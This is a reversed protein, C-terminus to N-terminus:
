RREVPKGIFPLNQRGLGQPHQDFYARGQRLGPASFNGGFVLISVFAAILCFRFESLGAIRDEAKGNTLSEAVLAM